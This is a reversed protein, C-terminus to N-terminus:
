AAFYYKKKNEQLLGAIGFFPFFKFFSALSLIGIAVAPWRSLPLIILGVLIFFILDVNGREYLLM